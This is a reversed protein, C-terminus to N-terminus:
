GFLVVFMFLGMSWIYGIDGCVVGKDIIDVNLCLFYLIVVM